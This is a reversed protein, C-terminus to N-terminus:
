DIKHGKKDFSIRLNEKGYKNYTYGCLEAIKELLRKLAKREDEEEIVEVDEKYTKEGSETTGEWSYHKIIFGDEVTTIEIQNDKEIQM